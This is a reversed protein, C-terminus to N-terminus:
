LQSKFVRRFIGFPGIDFSTADQVLIFFTRIRLLIASGVFSDLCETIITHTPYSLLFISKFRYDTEIWFLFTSSFCCNTVSLISFNTMLILFSYFRMCFSPMYSHWIFNKWFFSALTRASGRYYNVKCMCCITLFIEFALAPIHLFYHSVFKRLFRLM